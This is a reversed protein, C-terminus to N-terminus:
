LNETKSINNKNNQIKLLKITSNNIQPNTRIFKRSTCLNSGISNRHEVTLYPLFVSFHHLGLMQIASSRYHKI